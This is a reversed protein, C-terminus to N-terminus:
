SGSTLRVRSLIPLSAFTRAYPHCREIFQNTRPFHGLKRTARYVTCGRTAFFVRPTGNGPEDVLIYRPIGM